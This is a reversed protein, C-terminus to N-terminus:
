LGWGRLADREEQSSRVKKFRARPKGKVAAECDKWAAHRALVGAVLSLYVPFGPEPRGRRSACAGADRRRPATEALALTLDHGYGSAPGDYLPEPCGEAFSLAIADARCNGLIGSHGPVQVWRVIRPGRIAVLSDLDEWLDRNLVESGDPRVWGKRKWGALWRTMGLVLYSSDARIEVPGPPAARLAEVAAKLEMRNNTTRAQVGGPGAPTGGLERVSGDPLDLIAAWGGPGPNGVCAGDTFAVCPEPRRAASQRSSM